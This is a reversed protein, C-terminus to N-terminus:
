RFDSYTLQGKCAPYSSLDWRHSEWMNEDRLLVAGDLGNTLAKAMDVHYYNGDVEVINWCYDEWNNQGFVVICELELQRCLEAYAYSLGESDATGSILASYVSNNQGEGSYSCKNFLYECAIVARDGKSANALRDEMGAFPKLENLQEQKAKLEEHSMGYSINIEYLRQIGNGSFMNVSVKPASPALGPNKMYVDSVLREMAEATYSSRNILVPLKTKGESFAKKIHEEIGTSYKLKIVDGAERGADVYSVRVVAEYNQLVKTLEYSINEVYYACLADQTKIEWCASDLDASRDGKYGRDFSILGESKGESVLQSIASKLGDYNSVKIKEGALKETAPPVYDSVAVYEKDFVSGCACLFLTLGALCVIATLKKTM